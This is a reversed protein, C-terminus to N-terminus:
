TALTSYRQNIEKRYWILTIASFSLAQMGTQHYKQKFDSIRFLQYGAQLSVPPVTFDKVPCASIKVM